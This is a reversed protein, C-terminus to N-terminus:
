RKVNHPYIIRTRKRLDALEMENTTGYFLSPNNTLEQFTLSYQGTSGKNSKCPYWQVTGSNFAVNAGEGKHNEPPCFMVVCNEPDKDTLGSVYAYNTWEHINTSSGVQHGSSRCVFIGLDGKYVYDPFADNFTIPYKGDHDGAYWKMFLVFQRPNNRCNARRAMEGERCGGFFTPVILGLSILGLLVSCLLLVLGSWYRKAIFSRIGRYFLIIAGILCVLIVGFFYILTVFEM